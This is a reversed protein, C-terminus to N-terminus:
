WIKGENILKVKLKNVRDEIPSTVKQNELSMHLDARSLILKAKEYAKEEIFKHMSSKPVFAYSLECNMVEAVRRLTELTVRGGVERSEVQAITATSVGCAEALKKLTMGLASRMQRISGEEAKYVALNHANVTLQKEIQKLAMRNMRAM